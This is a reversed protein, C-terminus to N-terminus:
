RNRSRWRILWFLTTRRGHENKEFEFMGFPFLSLLSKREVQRTESPKYRSQYTGLFQFIFDLAEWNTSDLDSDYDFLIPIHFEFGVDDINQLEFSAEHAGLPGRVGLVLSDADVSETSAQEMFEIDKGALDIAIGEEAAISLVQRAVQALSTVPEGNCMQVQDGGRLGALYAPSGTVIGVVYVRAQSLGYVTAGLDAPIEALQMGTVKLVGLSTDLEISDTQSDTIEKEGPILTINFARADNGAGSTSTGVGRVVRLDCAVGPQTSFEIMEIFQADNIVPKGNIELILDGTLLGATSAAMGPLVRVVRVGTWAEVALKRALEASISEVTVGFWSVVSSREHTKILRPQYSSGSSLRYQLKGNEGDSGSRLVVGQSTQLSHEGHFGIGSCSALAALLFISLPRQITNM